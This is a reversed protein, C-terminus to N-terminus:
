PSEPHAEEKHAKRKKLLESIQKFSASPLEVYDAAKIMKKSEEASDLKKAADRLMPGASADGLVIMADVAAERLKPDDSELYPRIVSLEKPDYSTAADQMKEIAEERDAESTPLDAAESKETNNNTETSRPNDENIDSRRISKEKVRFQDTKTSNLSTIDENEQTLKIVTVAVAIIILGLSVALTLNQKM